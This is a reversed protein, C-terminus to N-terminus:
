AHACCSCGAAPEATTATGPTLATLEALLGGIDVGHLSAAEAVAKGGGCCTDIGFRNFIATAEPTRNVVEAVTLNALEM